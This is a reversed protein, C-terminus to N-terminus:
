PPCTALGVGRDAIDTGATFVDARASALLRAVVTPATLPLQMQGVAEWWLAAVGAVHPAAMSTGSLATLGGGTKASLVNVGPASITPLTNSFRAVEVQEARRALAGVAIVGDAAAPVSAALEFQPRNSENGSAAVVLAGGDVAIRAAALRMIADFMRLNARYAELALSTAVTVGVQDKWEDVMGPFDFGLSMSIVRAGRELAWNMGNFLGDSSGGGRGDLVKGILARTVGRAVGIRQGDVDRGFVTGACHTGHGNGDGDGEGTFDRQELAVGAFAPHAADIGTDLIAVPVGAGTRMSADARVAAIGWAAAAAADADTAVTAILRVPMIPALAAVSPDRRISRVEAPSLESSELVPESAGGFSELGPGPPAGFPDRTEAGGLNRLITYKRKM